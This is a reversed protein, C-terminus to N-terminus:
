NTTFLNEQKHGISSNKKYRLLTKLKFDLDVDSLGLIFNADHKRVLVYKRGMSFCAYNSMCLLNQVHYAQFIYIWTILWITYLENEVM